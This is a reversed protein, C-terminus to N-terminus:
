QRFKDQILFPETEITNSVNLARDQIKVRIKLTDNRFLLRFGSLLSYKISGKLPREDGQTNLNFVRGWFNPGCTPEQRPDYLVWQGDELTYFDLFYNFHNNNRQVYVTDVKVILNTQPDRVRFIEYDFCNYPPLTDNDGYFLTDGGFIIDWIHYPTFTQNSNLGVDGDGDEFDIVFIMSDQLDNAQFFYFDKLAISPVVPFEPKEYCTSFAMSVLLFWIWSKRM